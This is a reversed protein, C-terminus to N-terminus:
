TGEKWGCQYRIQEKTKADIRIGMAALQLRAITDDIESPLTYIGAPLKGAHKILYEVALAQGCFSTSMVESPHGEACALNVLRGEACLYLTKGKVIYRELGDRIVEHKSAIKRLGEVAIEVDFHGGNALLAGDKMKKFHENSIVDKNGTVTLFVDGITAADHMPMVNFGDLAAQLAHFPNVECVVVRAGMGKARLAVGKGCDGYGVVVFTKGAILINSARLIGDISSQGTGYYNDLLHKTKNDNVAIVPYHLAGQEHMVRLRTVGTTTEECGGIIHTLRQPNKLHIRTVLDGGDDVTIHPEFLIVQDLFHYYDEKTEGKYAYVRCHERALASAVDDQTSLPNCSALAVEAGGAVLTRVLVGTEKTVHLAMGIRVGKFPKEHAFRKRLALLAGMRQEALALSKKGRDALSLDRVCYHSSVDM